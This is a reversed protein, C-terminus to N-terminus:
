QSPPWKGFWREIGPHARLKDGYDPGARDALEEILAIAEEEQASRQAENQILTAGFALARWLIWRFRHRRSLVCAREVLRRAEGEERPKWLPHALLRAALLYTEACLLPDGYLDAEDLLELLTTSLQPPRETRGLLLWAQAPLLVDKRDVERALTIAEQLWGRAQAPEHLDECLQGLRLFIECLFNKSGQSRAAAFADLLMQRAAPFDGLDHLVNGINAKIFPEAWKASLEPIMAEASRLRELAERGEGQIHAICGLNSLTVLVGMRDEIEMKIQLSRQFSAAADEYDGQQLHVKAINNLARAVGQRDGIQDAAALARSGMEMAQPLRGQHSLIESIMRLSRAEQAADGGKRSLRLVERHAQLAEDFRGQIKRIDGLKSQAFAAAEEQDSASLLEIAQAILSEAQPLDGVALALSGLQAQAYGAELLDRQASARQLLAEYDAKAEQTKGILTFIEGRSRLLHAELKPAHERTEELIALAESYCYIAETNGYRRRFHDGAEVLHELARSRAGAALFHHALTAHPLPRRDLHLIAEAIRLHLRRRKRLSLNEYLVERLKEHHFRYIETEARIEHIVGQRLLEDCIDILTDEDLRCAALLAEFDFETGIVAACSLVSREEASLRELRQRLLTRMAESTGIRHGRSIGEKGGMELFESSLLWREGELFLFGREVLANMLEEVFFPIGESERMLPEILAKPAESGGLMSSALAQVESRDLRPLMLHEVPPPDANTRAIRRLEEVLRLLPAPAEENRYTAVIQLHTAPESSEGWRYEVPEVLTRVLYELIALSAEDALHLDELLFVATRKATFRRITERIADFLRIKEEAVSLPPLHRTAVVGSIREVAPVVRGITRGIRALSGDEAEEGEEKFLQEFIVGLLDQWLALPQGRMARGRVFHIPHLQLRKEFERLLRSKGIGSEGSIWVLSPIGRTARENWRTLSALAEGRGVFRPSFLYDGKEEISISVPSTETEIAALGRALEQASAPRAAPDKELLRLILREVPIPVAANLSRPPLPVAEAHLRLMELFTSAQFPRRGTVLEYFIVGLSYLDARADVEHGMGQEPAMYAVTGIVKGETMSSAKAEIERVLGFDLIKVRDEGTVLLNAPKLDRHIMRAEHIAALPRCAKMLLSIARGIQSPSPAPTQARGAAPPLPFGVAATDLEGLRSSPHGWVAETLHRGEILAMTFYPFGSDIGFDYVEVLDPHSLRQMARFERRFRRVDIPDDRLVRKLALIEGTDPDEVQFVEGMGGRGIQAIM